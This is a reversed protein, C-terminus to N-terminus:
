AAAFYRRMLEEYFDVGEELEAVAIYEDPTHSRRSDGPGAKIAPIGKLFVWDSLTPSGFAQSQPRAALSARVIPEAPDTSVAELRQSRVTVESKVRGRVLSVIEEPRYSPTTRIDIVMRCSDPIMNHCLGGQIQTVNLSPRGLFPHDREWNLAGLSLIDRAATEVANSGGGWAAHAARGRSTLELVILGKQAIAPSLGTPEGVVAADPRPLDPLLTQLGQGNIEEECTAALCLRGRPRPGANFVRQAALIMATLCGKADNAGRGYLRGDQLQAALPDKSWGNGAPVTDTHSNFLLLPGQDGLITWLNRGQRRAQWGMEGFLTQLRNVLAEEQGTPSAIRVLERLLEVPNM